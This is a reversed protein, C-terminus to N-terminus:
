ISTHIQFTTLLVFCYFRVLHLSSLFWISVYCNHVYYSILRFSNKWEQVIETPNFQSSLISARLLLLKSVVLILYDCMVFLLGRQLPKTLYNKSLFVEFLGSATPIFQTLSYMWFTHLLYTHACFFVILNTM